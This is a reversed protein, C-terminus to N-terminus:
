LSVWDANASINGSSSSISKGSSMDDSESSPTPPTVTLKGTGIAIPAILAQEWVVGGNVGRVM